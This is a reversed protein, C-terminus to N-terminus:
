SFVEGQSTPLATQAPLRTVPARLQQLTLPPDSCTHGLTSAEHGLGLTAAFSTPAPALCPGLSWSWAGRQQKHLWLLWRLPTRAGLTGAEGGAAQVGM